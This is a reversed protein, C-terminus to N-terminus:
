LSRDSESQEEESYIIKLCQDCMTRSFAAEPHREIYRGLTEWNGKDDRIKECTVCIPLLGSLLKIRDQSKQFDHLIQANSERTETLRREARERKQTEARLSIVLEDHRKMVFYATLSGAVAVLAITMARSAWISIGPFVVEKLAEFLTMGLVLAVAAVILM